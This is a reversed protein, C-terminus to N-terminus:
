LDSSEVSDDKRPTFRVQLDPKWWQVHMHSQGEWDLDEDLLEMDYTFILKALILSMEVYAFSRSACGRM